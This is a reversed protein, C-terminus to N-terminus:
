VVSKRDVSTMGTKIFDLMHEFCRDNMASAEMIKLLEEPRKGM